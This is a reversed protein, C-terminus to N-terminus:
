RMRRRWDTPTEGTLRKFAAAFATQSAYGLEASVAVISIDSDRLMKMAQELRYQRLWNHPSLGTSEKFARCFHFRSLGADAALAALSVDADSDSRLREIARQLVKPALGGLTPRIPAPAGVHAALLRMALLDTLQQRFLMDLAQNGELVDAASLLLRSTIPDPHATRELLDISAGAGAEDAVRRFTTHPLYLQVVDVPKPIDWRSSSGEPIIILVGPRFTGTAAARGSRREMRQTMGNYAMIVHHTMPEVVDHLPEHKWHAIGAGSSDLAMRFPTTHLVRAMEADAHRHESSAAGARPPTEPAAPPNEQGNHPVPKSM